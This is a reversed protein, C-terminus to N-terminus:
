GFLKRLESVDIPPSERHLMAHCNPCVPRLDEVPDVSREENSHSVPALHHVHIFGKGLEGYVEGFEIGCVVCQAGYHDICVKRAYPNREYRTTVVRSKSGELYLPASGGGSKQVPDGLGLEEVHRFWVSELAEAIEPAISIGSAQPTWTQLNLPPSELQELPLIHGSDPDILVDFEIDVRNVLKNEGGWHPALFPESQVYGSAIVGRPPVGLRVLFARDGPRISKHSQCSWWESTYGTAAIQELAQPLNNWPWKSPNWAFLYTAM